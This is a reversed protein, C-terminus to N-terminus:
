MESDNLPGDVVFVAPLFIKSLWFGGIGTPGVARDPGPRLAGATGRQQQPLGRQRGILAPATREVGEGVAETEADRRVEVLAGELRRVRGGVTGRVFVVVRHVQREERQV